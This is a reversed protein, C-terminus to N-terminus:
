TTEIQSRDMSERVLTGNTSLDVFELGPRRECSKEPVSNVSQLSFSHFVCKCACQRADFTEICVVDHLSGCLRLIESRDMSARVWTGNTSLDVLELGPRREGAALGTLSWSEFFLITCNVCAPM